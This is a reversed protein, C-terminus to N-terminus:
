PKMGETRKAVWEALWGWSQRMQDEVQKRWADWGGIVRAANWVAWEEQLRKVSKDMKDRRGMRIDYAQDSVRGAVGSENEDPYPPMKPPAPRALAEDLLARLGEIDRRTAYALRGDFVVQFELSSDGMEVGPIQTIWVRARDLVDQPRDGYKLGKLQQYRM